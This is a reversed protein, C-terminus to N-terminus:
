RLSRSLRAKANGSVAGACFTGRPSFPEASGKSRLPNCLGERLLSDARLVPSGRGYSVVGGGLVM